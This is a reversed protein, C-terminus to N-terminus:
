VSFAFSQYRRIRLRRSEIPTSSKEPAAKIVTDVPLTTKGSQKAASATDHQKKLAIRNTRIRVATM